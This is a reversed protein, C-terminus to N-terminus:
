LASQDHEGETRRVAAHPRTSKGGGGAARWRDWEELEKLSRYKRGNIYRPKPFCLGPTADWRPLTRQSVGYRLAVKPDPLEGDM